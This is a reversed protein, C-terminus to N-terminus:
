YAQHWGADVVVPTYIAGWPRGLEACLKTIQQMRPRAVNRLFQEREPGALSAAEQWVARGVAVGTCGQQCAVRVMRLFLDYEASASLLVWPARSAATLEACADSWTKEDTDFQYDVPFEAKLVDGGLSTLRRATEIVM